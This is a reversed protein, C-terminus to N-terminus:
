GRWWVGLAAQCSRRCSGRIGDGFGAFFAGSKGRGEGGLGALPFSMAGRKVPLLHGSRGNNSLRKVLVVGGEVEIARRFPRSAGPLLVLSPSGLSMDGNAVHSWDVFGLGLDVTVALWGLGVRYLLARGGDGVRSRGAVGVSASSFPM